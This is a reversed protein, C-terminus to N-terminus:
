HSFEYKIRLEEYIRVSSGKRYTLLYYNLIHFM